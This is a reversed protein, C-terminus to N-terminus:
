KRLNRMEKVTDVDKRWADKIEKLVMAKRADKEELEQRKVSFDMKHM